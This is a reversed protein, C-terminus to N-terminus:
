EQPIQMVMRFAYGVGPAYGYRYASRIFFAKSTDRGGRLVKVGGELYVPDTVEAETYKRYCSDLCYEADNGHMDYLGWGNPPYSRVARKKGVSKGVPNYRTAETADFNAQDSTIIDGTNFATTTGARCTYEWEAETPLRFQYGTAASLIDCYDVATAWDVEHASCEEEGAKIKGFTDGMVAWFQKSTTPTEALFFARSINVRHQPHENAEGGENEPSGMMFTGVPIRVLKLSARGDIDLVIRKANLVDGPTVTVKLTEKMATKHAEYAAEISAKREEFLAKGNASLALADQQYRRFAEADVTCDKEPSRPDTANIFEEVNTYGDGDADGNGDAGQHSDFGQSEEWADPMGDSDSDPAPPADALVPWGGVDAPSDIIRGTGNRIEEMLRADAADRKPLIAGAADLVSALVTEPPDTKVEPCPFPERVAVAARIVEPDSDRPVRILLVNNATEEPCEALVNDQFFVRAMDDGPDFTRTRVSKSTSPGAKLYNAVYNMFCPAETTYGGRYGWNYLVNNRFDLVVTNVRPNRSANHAYVCHHITIGGTGDIISGKSHEGKPHYSHSLGESIISWQATFNYAGFASMVEDTAWTMSCHDLISNNGGFIGVAMQERRTLDGSRFRVHRVITDNTALVFQYDKICIGGGPATQGAITLFPKQVWLDAKLSITGGVQFLVLRPGKAEVAARLSGEIPVDKGPVYDDLTTVYYVKGGRGGRTCAGFGEAEPFAKLLTAAPEQGSASCSVAIFLLLILFRVIRNGEPKTM